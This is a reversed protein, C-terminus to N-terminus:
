SPLVRFNSHILFGVILRCFIPEDILKGCTLSLQFLWYHTSCTIYGQMNDSFNYPLAPKSYSIAFFLEQGTVPKLLLPGRFSRFSELSVRFSDLNNWHHDVYSWKPVMWYRWLARIRWLLLQDPVIKPRKKCCVSEFSYLIYKLCNHTLFAM